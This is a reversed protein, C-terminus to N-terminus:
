LDADYIEILATGATGGVSTVQVTYAGPNVQLVIAADKSGPLLPFAGVTPTTATVQTVVAGQTWNDNTAITNTGALIDIKPDALPNTVGFGALTPGVARILLRKRQDGSVVFGATLIDTGGVYSRTSINTIRASGGAANDADYVEVLTTGPSTTGGGIVVSYLGPGVSLQLAADRSGPNLAFAGVQAAVNTLTTSNGWDNNSALTAGGSSLVALQPDNLLDTVGFNALTPGVARVLLPKTGAGRVVFGAVLTRDGTGAFARTSINVLRSAQQQLLFTGTVAGSVAGSVLGATPTVTGSLRGGTPTAFSYSGSSTLFDSGVERNTGAVAYVTISGDGGVIAVLSSNPNGALTGNLVMPSFTPSGLTIPGIFTKGEFVGSVGTASIQGRLLIADTASRVTFLGDAGVLIDSWFYNRGTPSTSFAIFTGRGNRNVGFAFRGVETASAYDGRYVTNSATSGNSGTTPADVTVAIVSSIVTAGANDTVKAMIDYPGASTPTWTMQYPSKTVPAGLSIGNVFFEVSEVSGDVDSATASITVAANPAFSSGVAPNTVAVQPLQNAVVTVPVDASTITLGNNDTVRAALRHTGLAVNSQWTFVFPLTLPPPPDIGDPNKPLADNVNGDVLFELKKLSSIGGDAGAAAVSVAVKTGQVVTLGATAPNTLQVTPLGGTVIVTTPPSTTVNGKDDFVLAVLVYRGPVPPTWSSTFPFTQDTSLLVGNLYFEVKTIFGDADNADAIINVPNGSSVSGNDVPNAIRATPPLGIPVVVRVPVAASTSTSGYNDTATATLIYPGLAPPTYSVTYPATSDIGASQGNVFFEIQKVLGGQTTPTTPTGNAFLGDASVVVSSGLPVLTNAVPSFIKTGTVFVRVAQTSASNGYADITQATIFYAGPQPPNWQAQPRDGPVALSVTKGDVFFITAFGSTGVVRAQLTVIGPPQEVVVDPASTYGTGGTFTIASISGNTITATATAGTGGGGGVFTIAPATLFGSGPAVITVRTVAGVTLTATATAQTTAGGGTLTVSPATAYGSGPNVVTVATVVGGVVTATATAPIGGVPPPDITVTPASTYGLGGTNVAISAVGGLPVVTATLSAASAGPNFATASENIPSTLEVRLVQASAAATTAILLAAGFSNRLWSKM